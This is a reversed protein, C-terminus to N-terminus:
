EHDPVAKRVKGHGKCGSCREYNEDEYARMCVFGCFTGDTTTVTMQGYPATARRECYPCIVSGEPSKFTGVPLGPVIAILDPMIKEM